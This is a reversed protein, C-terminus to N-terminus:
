DTTLAFFRAGRGGGGGVGGRARKKARRPRARESKMERTSAFTWLWRVKWTEHRANYITAKYFSQKDNKNTVNGPGKISFLRNTTKTQSGALPWPGKNYFSTLKSNTKLRVSVM